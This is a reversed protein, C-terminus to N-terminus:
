IEEGSVKIEFSSKGANSSVKLEGHMSDEILMKAMYLGIGTGEKKVKTSFYPDFVSEIYQSQIGGGNDIVIVSVKDESKQTQISLERDVRNKIEFNDIANNLIILLVQVYENEYGFIKLSNDDQRVVQINGLRSELLKLAKDIVKVIEFLNKEKNPRFFGSFDDITQSMYAINKESDDIKKSILTNEGYQSKNVDDIVSLSLNIRNLPQRWQHAINNLMEGMSALRSQKYLLHNKSHLEKQQVTYRYALAISLLTLEFFAGILPSYSTFLNVPLIGLNRFHIILIGLLLVGWATAFFKAYPNKSIFHSYISSGLILVISLLSLASSLISSNHYSLFFVAISMISNLIFLSYLIKYLKPSMGKIDLFVLTFVVALASGISMLLPIALTNIFPYDNWIYAASIGNLSLTFLLYNGHFLLYYLYTKEALFLYLIFNYLLMIVIAGFYFGLIISKELSYNIFDEYSKVLLELNMSGETQIKYYYTKSEKEELGVIFTPDPILADNNYVRLDGYQRKLVLVGEKLEYIDIYDLLTYPICLAERKFEKSVNKLEVKLWYISNSFGFNSYKVDYKQFVQKQIDINISSDKQEFYSIRSQVEIKDAFLILVTLILLVFTKM